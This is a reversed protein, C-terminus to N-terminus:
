FSEGIARRVTEAVLDPMSVNPCHGADPLHHVDVVNGSENSIMDICRQQFESPLVLDKDCFIWSIPIYKYAPYTLKGSFSITSHRSM